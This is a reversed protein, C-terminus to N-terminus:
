APAFQEALATIRGPLSPTDIIEQHLPAPAVGPGGRVIALGCKASGPDIALVTKM